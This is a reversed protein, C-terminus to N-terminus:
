NWGLSSCSSHPLDTRLIDGHEALEMGILAGVSGVAFAIVGLLIAFALLRELATALVKAFWLVRENM